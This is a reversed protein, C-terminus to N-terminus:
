WEELAALPIERHTEEASFEAWNETVRKMRQTMRAPSVGMLGAADSRSHGVALLGIARADQDSQHGVFQQWDLRFAVSDAVPWRNKWDPALLEEPDVSDISVWNEVSRKPQGCFRRGDRAGLWAYWALGHSGLRKGREFARVYMAWARCLTDQVLEERREADESRFCWRLLRGVEPLITLFGDQASTIEQTQTIAM